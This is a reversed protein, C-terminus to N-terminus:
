ANPRGGTYGDSGLYAYPGDQVAPSGERVAQMRREHLTPEADAETIQAAAQREALHEFGFDIVKPAYGDLYILMMRRDDDTLSNIRDIRAREGTLKPAADATVTM